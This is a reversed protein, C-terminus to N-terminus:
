LFHFWNRLLAQSCCTIMITEFPLFFDYCPFYVLFRYHLEFRHIRKDGREKMAIKKAKNTDNAHLLDDLAADRLPQPTAQLWKHQSLFQGIVVQYKSHLHQRYEENAQAKTFPRPLATLDPPPRRNAFVFCDRLLSQKMPLGEKVGQLCRNYTFRAATM